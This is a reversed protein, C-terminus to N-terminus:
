SDIGRLIGATRLSLEESRGLWEVQAPVRRRRVFNLEVEPMRAFEEAMGSPIVLLFDSSRSEASWRCEAGGVRGESDALSVLSPNAGEGLRVTVPTLSNCFLETRVVQGVANQGEAQLQEYEGITYANRTPEVPPLTATSPEPPANLADAIAARAIPDADGGGVGRILLVIVLAGLVGYAVYAAPRRWPPPPTRRDDRRREMDRRDARRREGSRDTDNAQPERKEAM